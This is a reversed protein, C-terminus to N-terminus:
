KDVTYPVVKNTADVTASIADKIQTETLNPSVDKVIKTAYELKDKGTGGRAESEAIADLILQSFFEALKPIVVQIVVPGVLRLVTNWNM